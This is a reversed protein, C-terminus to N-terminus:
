VPCVQFAPDNSAGIHLKQEALGQLLTVGVIWSFDDFYNHQQYTVDFM